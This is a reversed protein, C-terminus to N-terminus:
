PEKWVKIHRYPPPKKDNRRDEQLQRLEKEAQLEQFRKAAEELATPPQIVVFFMYLIISMQHAKQCLFDSYKQLARDRGEKYQNLVSTDFDQWWMNNVLGTVTWCHKVCNLRTSCSIQPVM